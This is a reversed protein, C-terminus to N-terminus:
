PQSPDGPPVPSPRGVETPRATGEAQHLHQGVYTWAEAASALDIARTFDKNQYAQRGQEYIKSSANLFQRAPGQAPTDRRADVIRQRASSFVQRAAESASRPQGNAGAPETTDTDAPEPPAPLGAAPPTTAHLVNILGQAGAFAALALSESKTYNHQQYAQHAQRYFDKAPDILKLLDDSLKAKNTNTWVSLLSLADYARHLADVARVDPPPVRAGGQSPQAGSPQQAILAGPSLILLALGLLLLLIQRSM